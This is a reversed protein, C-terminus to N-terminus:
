RARGEASACLDCADAVSVSRASPHSRTARAGLEVAAEVHDGQGARQRGQERQGSAVQRLGSAIDVAITAARAAPRSTPQKPGLAAQSGSRRAPPAPRDAAPDRVAPSGRLGSCSRRQLDSTIRRDAERQCVPHTLYRSDHRSWYEPSHHLQCGALRQLRSTGTRIRAGWNTVIAQLVVIETRDCSSDNTHTGEYGGYESASSRAATACAVAPSVRQSQEAVRDLPCVVARHLAQDVRQSM